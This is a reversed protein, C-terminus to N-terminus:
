RNLGNRRYHLFGDEERDYLMGAYEAIRVSAENGPYIKARIPSVIQRAVISVMEKGIGRGRMEPAVTWLLEYIGDSYDVRITGVPVGNEEAILLKRNTDNLIKILWTIHEDSRIEHKTYSAKKTQPDNRWKLLLDADQITARRIKM